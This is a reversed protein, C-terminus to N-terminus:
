VGSSRPHRLASPNERFSESELAERCLSLAGDIFGQVVLEDMPAAPRGRRHDLAAEVLRAHRSRAVTWKAAESKSSWLGEQVFRRARCATLVTHEAPANDSHWLISDILAEIVWPRPVPAFLETPPPGVLPIAHDRAIALDLVFWFAPEQDPDFSVLDDTDRGTNFNLEYSPAPSPNRAADIPFIVLELRRAPCPLRETSLADAVSRKREPSLREMTVAVIDIDSTGPVYDSLAASDLLYAACADSSLIGELTKVVEAIYDRAPEDLPSALSLRGHHESHWRPRRCRPRPAGRKRTRGRDTGATRGRAQLSLTADM